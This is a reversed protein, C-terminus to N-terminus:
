VNSDLKKKIHRAGFVAPVQKERSLTQLALAESSRILFHDSVNAAQLRGHDPALRTIEGATFSNFLM